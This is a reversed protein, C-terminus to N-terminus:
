VKDLCDKCIIGIMQINVIPMSFEYFDEAEVACRHCTHPYSPDEEDKLSQQLACDMCYIYNPNKVFGVWITPNLPDVHECHEPAPIDEDNDYKEQLSTIWTWEQLLYGSIIEKRTRAKGSQTYGMEEKLNESKRFAADTDEAAAQLQEEIRAYLIEDDSPVNNEM